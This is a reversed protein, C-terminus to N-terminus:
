KVVVVEVVGVVIVEVAVVGVVLMVVVVVVEVNVASSMIGIELLISGPSHCSFSPRPPVVMRSVTMLSALSYMVAKVVSALFALAGGGGTGLLWFGSGLLSDSILSSIEINSFPCSGFNLFFAEFPSLLLLLELPVPFLSPLSAVRSESISMLIMAPPRCVVSCFGKKKDLGEEELGAIGSGGRELRGRGLGGRGPGVRGLRRRRLGGSCNM